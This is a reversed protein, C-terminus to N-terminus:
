WAHPPPKRGLGTQPIGEQFHHGEPPRLMDEVLARLDITETVFHGRGSYALMQRCLAAARRSSSTIELLNERAPASPSLESLALEANGLVSTLINNFDHAIGGALVGLSELKQSHQLQRELQLREEEARVRDTLDHFVVQVASRDDFDVSAVSAAVDVPTGDLRLVKIEQPRTRDGDPASAGWQVALRRYGPHILESADRGIMEQSSTAGFLRAAAPNAFVCKGDVSAIIADPSLNVLTHYRNESARLAEEARRSETIDRCICFILKEGGYITGSTSIEIECLTGDKRRHRTTFHDGDEDVEEIMGVLEEKTFQTDWDWVHLQYIEEMSYGLMRAYAENAEYVRGERDLVVIGDTSQQVLMRRRAVEDRLLAESRKRERIDRSFALLYEQGEFEIHSTTVEVPFIDGSKTRHTSEFTQSEHKKSELWREDWSDLINPDVDWVTMDLLEERPYGLHRCISDNVFLFHGTPGIWSMMDAVRNVSFETLRLSKEAQKRETIDRITVLFEDQKGVQLGSGNLEGVFTSADKRKMGLELNRAKEGRERAGRFATIAKPISREDLFETFHRGCMEEPAFDFLSRSAPSAYTVYGDADTFAVLDATQEAISRFRSESERLTEDPQEPKSFRGDAHHESSDHTSM